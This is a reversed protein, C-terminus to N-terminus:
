RTTEECQHDRADGIAAAFECPEYGPSMAHCTTCRWAYGHITFGGHPTPRRYDWRHVNVDAGTRATVTTLVGSLPPGDPQHAGTTRVTPRAPEAPTFGPPLPPLLVTSM